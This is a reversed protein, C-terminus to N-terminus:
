GEIEKEGVQPGQVWLTGHLVSLCPVTAGEMEEKRTLPFTHPRLDPSRPEPGPDAKLM